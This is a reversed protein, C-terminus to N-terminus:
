EDQVEPRAKLVPIADRESVLADSSIDTGLVHRYSAGWWDFRITLEDHNDVMRRLIHDLKAMTTM